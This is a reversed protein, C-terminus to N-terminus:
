ERRPAETGGNISSDRHVKAHLEGLKETLATMISQAHELRVTRARVQKIVREEYAASSDGEKM